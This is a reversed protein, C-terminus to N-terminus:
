EEKIVTLYGSIGADNANDVYRIRKGGLYGKLVVEEILAEVESRKIFDQDNNFQSLKTPQGTLDSYKGSSAVASLNALKTKETTTYDNTSLGKGDIKDVKEGILNLVTTSFNPDNGLANALEWLTNLENPASDVLEALLIDIYTQISAIDISTWYDIGRQPTYGDFYDIGKQPTYGDFYDVNKQPTYGDKGRLSELEEETFDGYTFARGKLDASSTGSASSIILKTGDWQHTCSIGDFYDVGKVPTYGTLLQIQEPTFDEFKFDKGKLSKLWDIVSGEFGNEVALEYASKGELSFDLSNIFDVVAKSTPITRDDSSEDLVKTVGEYHNLVEPIRVECYYEDYPYTEYLLYTGQSTLSVGKVTVGIDERNVIFLTDRYSKSNEGLTNAEKESIIFSDVLLGSLKSYKNISLGKLEEISYPTSSVNILYTSYSDFNGTLVYYGQLGTKTSLLTEPIHEILTKQALINHRARYKDIDLLTQKVDYRVAGNIMVGINSNPNDNNEGSNGGSNDGYDDDPIYEDGSTFSEECLIIYNVILNWIHFTIESEPLTVSQKHLLRLTKGETNLDCVLLGGSINTLKYYIM